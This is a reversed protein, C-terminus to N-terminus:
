PEEKVARAVAVVAAVRIGQRRFTNMASRVTAGTTYIDDVLIVSPASRRGKWDPGIAFVDQLNRAREAASLEFQAQTAQLRVLGQPALPYDTMQCFSRAILEAQNFGRQQQRSAHLPIPVVIPAVGQRTPAQTESLWTEALWGGMPRALHPQHEYKLAAILRKLSGTYRGWAILPAGGQLVLPKGEWRCHQLQHQCTACLDQHTSRQCLPCPAQLFLSLFDHFPQVWSKKQLM